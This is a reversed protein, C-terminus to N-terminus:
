VEAGCVPCEDVPEVDEHSGDDHYTHVTWRRPGRWGCEDCRTPEPSDRRGWMWAWRIHRRLPARCGRMDGWRLIHGVVGCVARWTGWALTWVVALLHPALYAWLRFRLALMNFPAAIAALLLAVAARLDTGYIARLAHKLPVVLMWGDISKPIHGSRYLRFSDSIRRESEALWDPHAIPISKM